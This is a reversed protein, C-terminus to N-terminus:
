VFVTEDDLGSPRFIMWLDGVNTGTPQAVILDEAAQLAHFSDHGRVATRPNQGGRLARDVTGCDVLAGAASTPGDRGDTGVFLATPDLRVALDPPPDAFALATLLAGHQNRGGLGGDSFEVTTEGCFISLGSGAGALCSQVAEEVTGEMTTTKVEARFGLDVGLQRARRAVLGGDAIVM